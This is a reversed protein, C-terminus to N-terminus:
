NKIKTNISLGGKQKILILKKDKLDGDIYFCM